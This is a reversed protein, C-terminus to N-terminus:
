LQPGNTMGLQQDLYVRDEEDEVTEDLQEALIRAIFAAVIINYTRRLRYMIWEVAVIYVFSGPVQDTFLTRWITCTFTLASGPVLPTGISSATAALILGISRGPTIVENLGSTYAMFISAVVFFIATGCLCLSVGMCITFQALTRSVQQSKELSRMLVPVTALYNGTALMYIVGPMLFWVFKLPNRRVLIAYFVCAVAFFNVLLAVVMALTFYLSDRMAQQSFEGTMISFSMMSLTGLPIYPVLWNLIMELVVHIQRTLVLAHNLEGSSPDYVKMITAGIIMSFITISLFQVVVFAETINETFFDGFFEVIQAALSQYGPFVGSTAALSQQLADPLGTVNTATLIQGDRVSQATCEGVRSFLKGNPCRLIFQFNTTAPSVDPKVTFYGAFCFAVAIAVCSSLLAALVFYIALRMMVPRTKNSVVLNSFCTTVSTFMLPLTLCELARILLTGILGIWLQADESISYKNLLGGAVVGVAGAATTLWLSPTKYYLDVLLDDQADITAHAHAMEGPWPIRKRGNFTGMPDRFPVPILEQERRDPTLEQTPAESEDSETITAPVHLTKNEVYHAVVLTVLADTTVNVCAVLPDTIWELGALFALLIARPGTAVGFIAGLTTALAATKGGAPLPSLVSAILANAFVMAVIAGASEAEVLGSNDMGSASATLVFLTTVSLYLATGTQSLVTSAACVVFALPPSVCKSAIVSSVTAPLAVLSSGSSLALLQASVVHRLFAFPNSQTLLTALTLMVVVDLVLAFLLVAVLALTAAAISSVGTDEPSSSRLLVSCVMFGAGVLIYKQMWILVSCVVAEAHAVLQLLVSRTEEKGESEEDQNQEGQDDEHGPEETHNTSALRVLAVGLALGGIVLSLVDGNLFAGPLSVPFVSEAVSVLQEAVSPAIAESEVVFTRAVDHLVFTTTNESCMLTGDNHLALSGNVVDSPCSFAVTAGSSLRWAQALVKTHPIIGRLAVAVSAGIASALLSAVAFGM